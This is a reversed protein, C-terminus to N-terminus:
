DLSRSACLVTEDAAPYVCASMCGTTRGMASVGQCHHQQHTAHTIHVRCTPPVQLVQPQIVEVCQLPGCGVGGAGCCLHLVALLRCCSLSRPQQIPQQRCRRTVRHRGPIVAEQDQTPVDLHAATCAHHLPQPQPM